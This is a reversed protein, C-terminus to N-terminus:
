LYNYLFSCGHDNLLYLGNNYYISYIRDGNISTALGTWSQDPANSSLKNTFKTIVSNIGKNYVIKNNIFSSINQISSFAM